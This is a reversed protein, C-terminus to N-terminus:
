ADFSHLVAFSASWSFTDVRVRFFPLKFTNCVEFPDIMPYTVLSTVGTSLATPAIPRFHLWFAENHSKYMCPFSASLQNSFQSPVRCCPRWVLKRPGCKTRSTRECLQSSLKDSIFFYCTKSVNTSRTALLMERFLWMVFSTRGEFQQTTAYTASQCSHKSVV